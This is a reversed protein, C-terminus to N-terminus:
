ASSLWYIDSCFFTLIFFTWYGKKLNQDKESCWCHCSTILLGEHGKMRLLFSICKSFWLFNFLINLNLLSNRQNKKRKIYKLRLVNSYKWHSMLNNAQQQGCCIIAMVHCSSITSSRCTWTQYGWIISTYCM